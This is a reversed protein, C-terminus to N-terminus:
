VQRGLTTQFSQVLTYLNKADADTLSSGVTAMRIAQTSAYTVGSTGLGVDINAVNPDAGNELLLDMIKSVNGAEEYSNFGRKSLVVLRESIILLLSSNNKDGKYIVNPDAGKKLFHKFIDFQGTLFILIMLQRNNIEDIEAKGVIVKKVFLARIIKYIRLNFTNDDKKDLTYTLQELATQLVTKGTKPNIQNVDFGSSNIFSIAREDNINEIAYFVDGLVTKGISDRISSIYRAM